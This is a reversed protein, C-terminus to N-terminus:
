SRRVLSRFTPVVEVSVTPMHGVQCGCWGSGGCMCMVQANSLRQQGWLMPVVDQTWCGGDDREHMAGTMGRCLSLYCLNVLVVILVTMGRVGGAFGM